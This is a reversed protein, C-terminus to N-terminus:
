LYQNVTEVDVGLRKFRSRMLERANVILDAVDVCEMLEEPDFPKQLYDRVGVEVAKAANKEKELGTVMIIYSYRIDQIRKAVELGSMGPLMWDLLVVSCDCSEFERIASEGDIAEIVEHGAHTLMLRLAGRFDDEDDVILIKM